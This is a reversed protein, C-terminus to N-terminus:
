GCVGIRMRVLVRMVGDEDKGKCENEKEKWKGKIGVRMRVEFRM